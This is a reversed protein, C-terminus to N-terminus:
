QPLPIPIPLYRQERRHRVYKTLSILNNFVDYTDNDSLIMCRHKYVLEIGGEINILDYVLM